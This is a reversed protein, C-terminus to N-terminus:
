GLGIPVVFYRERPSAGALVAEPERRVGVHLERHLVQGRARRAAAARAAAEHARRVRGGAGRDPGAGRARRGRRARAEGRAGEAARAVRRARGGAARPVAQVQARAGRAADARIRAPQSPLPACSLYPKNPTKTSVMRGKFAPDAVKPENDTAGATSTGFLWSMVSPTVSEIRVPTPFPHVRSLREPLTRQCLSLKPVANRAMPGSGGM